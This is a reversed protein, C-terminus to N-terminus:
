SEEKKIKEIEKISLGTTSSILQLDIHAKLLNKAIEKKGEQLGEARGKKLGIEERDRERALQDQRFKNKAELQLRLAEDYSLEKFKCVAEKLAADSKALMELEEKSETKFFEMWKWLDSGDSNEPLKKLEL